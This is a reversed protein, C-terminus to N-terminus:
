SLLSGLATRNLGHGSMPYRFLLAMLKEGQGARVAVFRM